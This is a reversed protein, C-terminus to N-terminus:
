RIVQNRILVYCDNGGEIHQISLETLHTKPLNSINISGGGTLYVTGAASSYPIIAGAGYNSGTFWITSSGSVSISKLWKGPHGLREFDNAQSTPFNYPHTANASM